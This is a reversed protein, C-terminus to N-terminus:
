NFLLGFIFWHGSHVIFGQKKYQLLTKLSQMLDKYNGDYFDYRGYGHEFLTDGVFIHNKVIYSVGGKTHGPTFIVSVTFDGIKLENENKSIVYDPKFLDINLGFSNSMNLQNSLCKDADLYSIYVKYGLGQLRKCSAIHDYHGHTLLIALVNLSNAKLINQIKEFDSGADIILCDKKENFIFYTMEDLLSNKLAIVKM